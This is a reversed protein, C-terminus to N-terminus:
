HSHILFRRFSRISVEMNNLSNVYDLSSLQFERTADSLEQELGASKVTKLNKKKLHSVRSLAADCQNSVREYKKRKEKLKCEIHQV